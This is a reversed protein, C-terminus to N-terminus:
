RAKTQRRLALALELFKEVTAPEAGVLEVIDVAPARQYLIGFQAGKLPPQGKMYRSVIADGSTCQGRQLRNGEPFPLAEPLLASIEM